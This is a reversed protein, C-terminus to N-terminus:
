PCNGHRTQACIKVTEGYDPIGDLKASISTCNNYVRLGLRPVYANRSEAVAGAGDVREVRISGPTPAAWFPLRCLQATILVGKGAMRYGPRTIRFGFPAHTEVKPLPRSGSPDSTQSPAASSESRQALLPAAYAVGLACGIALGASRM